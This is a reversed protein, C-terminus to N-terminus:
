DWECCQPWVCGARLPEVGSPSFLMVTHVERKDSLLSWAVCVMCCVCVGYLPYVTMGCSIRAQCDARRHWLSWILKIHTSMVQIWCMTCNAQSPGWVGASFWVPVTRVHVCTSTSHPAFNRRRIETYRILVMCLMPYMILCYLVCMVVTDCPGSYM